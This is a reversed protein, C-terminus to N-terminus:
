QLRKFVQTTLKSSACWQDGFTSQCGLPNTPDPALLDDDGYIVHVTITCLRATNCDSSLRLDALRMNQSLLESGNTGAIKSDEPDKQGLNLPTCAQSGGITDRWLAHEITHDNPNYQGNGAEVQGNIVYSYRTTAICFANFISGQGYDYPAPATTAVVKNQSLQLQQSIDAMISRSTTQTQDTIIGRYYMRELQFLATTAGLLIVSFVMTAILLEIITFGQQSRHSM